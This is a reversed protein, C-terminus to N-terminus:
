RRDDRLKRCDISFTVKGKPKRLEAYAKGAAVLELGRRITATLNEGTSEQAKELLATPLQVTVKRAAPVGTFTGDLIGYQM